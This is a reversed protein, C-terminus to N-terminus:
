SFKEEAKFYHSTKTAFHLLPILALYSTDYLAGLDNTVLVPSFLGLLIFFNSLRYYHVTLLRVWIILGLLGINALISVIGSVCYTTGIGLGFIPRALYSRFSEVMGIIRSAESGYDIGIVYSGTFSKQAQIGSEFIRAILNSNEFWSYLLFAFVFVGAVLTYFSFSLVSFKDAQISNITTLLILFSLICVFFSFSNALSGILLISLFWFLNRIVNGSMKSLVLFLISMNFLALAYHSPERSLGQLRTLGGGTSIGRGFFQNLIPNLDVNLVYRFIIEILGFLILIKAFLILVHLIEIWDQKVLLSKAIVLITVFICARILM